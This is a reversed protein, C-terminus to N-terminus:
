KGVPARLRKASKGSPRPKTAASRKKKPMAAVANRARMAAVRCRDSCYKAHSRRGTLPGTLFLTEDHECSKLRANNAAIMLAELRMLAALSSPRLVVQPKRKESLILQLIPSRHQDDIMKANVAKVAPMGGAAATSLLASYEKKDTLIRDRSVEERALRPMGFRTLFKELLEDNRANAFHVIIPSELNHLNFSIPSFRDSKPRFQEGFPKTPLYTAGKIGGAPERFPGYDFLEVGDVCQQWDLTIGYM